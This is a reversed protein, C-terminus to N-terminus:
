VNPNQCSSLHVGHEAGLTILDILEEDYPLAETVFGPIGIDVIPFNEKVLREYNQAVLGQMPYRAVLEANAGARKFELDHKPGRTDFDNTIGFGIYKAGGRDIKYIYFDAPLTPKYGFKACSPCGTGGAVNALSTEWVAGCGDNM